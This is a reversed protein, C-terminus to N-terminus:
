PTLITCERWMQGCNAQRVYVYVRVDVDVGVFLLSSSPVTCVYCYTTKISVSLNFTVEASLTQTQKNEGQSHLLGIDSQLKKLEQGLTKFWLASHLGSRSLYLYPELRASLSQLLAQMQPLRESSLM